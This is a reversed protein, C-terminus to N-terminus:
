AYHDLWAPRINLHELPEPYPGVWPPSCTDVLHVPYGELDCGLELLFCLFRNSVILNRYRFEGSGFKEHTLAVDVPHELFKNTEYFYESKDLYGSYCYCEPHKTAENYKFYNEASSRFLNNMPPLIHSSWVFWAREKEPVPKKGSTKVEILRLGSFNAKEIKEKTAGRVLLFKSGTSGSMTGYEARVPTIPSELMPMGHSDHTKTSDVRGLKKKLALKAYSFHRLDESSYERMRYLTVGPSASSRGERLDFGFNLLLNIIKPVAPDSAEIRGTSFGLRTREAGSVEKVIADIQHPSLYTIGLEAYEDTHEHGSIIYVENM